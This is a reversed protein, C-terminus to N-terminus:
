FNDASPLNAGHEKKRCNPLKPSASLSLLEEPKLFMLYACDFKLLKIYRYKM